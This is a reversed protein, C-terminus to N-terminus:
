FNFGDGSAADAPDTGIPSFDEDDIGSEEPSNTDIPFDNGGTLLMPQFKVKEKSM